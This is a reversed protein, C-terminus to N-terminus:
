REARPLPKILLTLIVGLMLGALPGAPLLFEKQPWVPKEGDDAVPRDVFRLSYDQTVNAIMRKKIQAEMLHALATRVEVESTRQLEDQLYHLSADSKSIARSRMEANVRQILEIAWQAAEARDFWEIEMTILGTKRDEAITRIKKDFYKFGQALTPEHEKDTKWHGAASDWKRPFLRPMLQKDKIFGETLERSHLVALAEETDADRPLGLGITSALGGLAGSALSAVGDGRELSASTLVSTARYLPRTLFTVATFAISSVIVCVIIWTPNAILHKFLRQLDFSDGQDPGMPVVAQKEMLM